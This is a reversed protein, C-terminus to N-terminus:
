HIWEARDLGVCSCQESPAFNEFSMWQSSLPRSEIRECRYIALSHTICQANVQIRGASRSLVLVSFRSLGLVCLSTCLYCRLRPRHPRRRRWLRRCGRHCVSLCFSLGISVLCRLPQWNNHHWKYRTCANQESEAANRINACLYLALKHLRHQQRQQRQVHTEVPFFFSFIFQTSKCCVIYSQKRTPKNVEMRPTAAAAAASRCRSCKTHAPGRNWNCAAMNSAHSM